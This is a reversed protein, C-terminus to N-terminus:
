RFIYAATFIAENGLGAQRSGFSSLANGVLEDKENKKVDNNLAMCRLLVAGAELAVIDGPVLAAAPIQLTAGNRLV